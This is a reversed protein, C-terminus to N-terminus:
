GCPIQFPHPGSTARPEGPRPVRPSVAVVAVFLTASIVAERRAVASGHFDTLELLRQANQSHVARM